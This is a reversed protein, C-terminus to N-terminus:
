GLAEVELAGARGHGSIDALVEGLEHGRLVRAGFGAATPLAGGDAFEPLVVGRGMRPPGGVGIGGEDEGGVIVGAFDDGAGEHGAIGGPTVEGVQARGEFLVARRGGKVGVTQGEEAVAGWGVAEIGVGLELAGESGQADGMADGWVSGGFAFDFAAEVGELFTQDGEERVFADGMVGSGVLEELELDMPVVMFMDAAGGAQGGILGPVFGELFFARGQAGHGRNRQEVEMQGEVELAAEVGIVGQVEEALVPGDSGGVGFGDGDDVVGVVAEPDDRMRRIGVVGNPGVDQSM